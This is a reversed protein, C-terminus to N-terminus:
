RGGVAHEVGCSAAGVEVGAKVRELCEPCIGHSCDVAHHTKLYSELTQWYESDDRIRRCWACIPMLARLRVLETIDELLLLVRRRGEWVFPTTTVLYHVETSPTGLETTFQMRTRRRVLNSGQFSEGVSNRVVCDKCAVGHGCGGPTEQSHICQLVEGARRSLFRGPDSGLMEFAATNADLIQVDEDVAMVPNPIANLIERSLADVSGRSCGSSTNM